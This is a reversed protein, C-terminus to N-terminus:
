AALAEEARRLVPAVGIHRMCQRDIPCDKLFCPACPVQGRVVWPESGWPASRTASTAGWLSVVPVGVAAALHLAGSDPGILLRVRTLVALLDRLSTVGSLDLAPTQMAAVVARAFDRDDATGLLV